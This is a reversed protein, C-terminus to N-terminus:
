RWRRCLRRRRRCSDHVAAPWGTKTTPTASPPGSQSTKTVPPASADGGWLWRWYWCSRSVYQACPWRQPPGGVGGRDSGGRDPDHLLHIRFGELHSLEGPRGASQQGPGRGDRAASVDNRWVRGGLVIVAGIFLPVSELYLAAVGAMVAGVGLTSSAALIPRRGRRDSASGGVSMIVVELLFMCSLVVGIGWPPCDSTRSRWWRCCRSRSRM